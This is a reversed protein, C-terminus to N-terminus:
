EDTIRRTWQDIRAGDLVLSLKMVAIDADLLLMRIDTPMSTDDFSYSLQSHADRAWVVWEKGEKGVAWDGINM